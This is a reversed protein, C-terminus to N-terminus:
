CKGVYTSSPKRENDINKIKNKLAYSLIKRSFPLYRILNFKGTAFLMKLFRRNNSLHSLVDNVENDNFPRISDFKNM